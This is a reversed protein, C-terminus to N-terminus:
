FMRGRGSRGGIGTLKNILISVQPPQEAIALGGNDDSSFEAFLGTENPGMKVRTTTLTVGDCQVTLITSAWADHCAEAADVVTGGFTSFDLGMTVEAGLPVGVGTFIWNVQAWGLPILM